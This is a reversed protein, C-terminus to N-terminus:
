TSTPPPHDVGRVPRRIGVFSGTGMTYFATHAGRGTQVPASFRAGCQSEIVPGDLGYSVAIGVSSKRGM